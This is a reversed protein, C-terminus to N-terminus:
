PLGTPRREDRLRAMGRGTRTEVRSSRPMIRLDYGQSINRTPTEKPSMAEFRKIKRACAWRCGERDAGPSDGTLSARGSELDVIWGQRPPRGASSDVGASVRRAGRRDM